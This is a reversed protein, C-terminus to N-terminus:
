EHDKAELDANCQLLLRCTELQGRLASLHLPTRSSFFLLPFSDVLALPPESRSVIIITFLAPAIM